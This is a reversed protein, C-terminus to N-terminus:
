TDGGVSEYKWKEPVYCPCKKARRKGWVIPKNIAICNEFLPIRNKCYECDPHKRRYESVTM